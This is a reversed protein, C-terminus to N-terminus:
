SFPASVTGRGGRGGARTGLASPSESGLGKAQHLLLEQNGAQRPEGDASESVVESCQQPPADGESQRGGAAPQELGFWSSLGRFMGGAPGGSRDRDGSVRVPM